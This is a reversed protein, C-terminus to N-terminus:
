LKLYREHGSNKIDLVNLVFGGDAFKQLADEYHQAWDGIYTRKAIRWEGNRKELEDLYRGGFVHGEYDGQENPNAGQSLGYCESNAKNGEVKVRLNSMLHWRKASGREMEMVLPVWDKATGKFFGYDIEAEPWYCAQQGEDDLWDLTRAYDLLVNECAKVDLLNQLQSQLDQALPAQEGSM